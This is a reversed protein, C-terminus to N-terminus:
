SSYFSNDGMPDSVYGLPDPGGVFFIRATSESRNLNKQLLDLGMRQTNRLGSEFFRLSLSVCTNLVFAILVKIWCYRTLRLSSVIEWGAEGFIGSLILSSLNEKKEREKGDEEQKKWFM